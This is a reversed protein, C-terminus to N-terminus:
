KVVMILLCSHFSYGQETNEKCEADRTWWPIPGEGNIMDDRHCCYGKVEWTMYCRVTFLWVLFALGLGWFRIGFITRQSLDMWHGRIREINPLVSELWHLIWTNKQITLDRNKTKIFFRIPESKLRGHFSWCKQCATFKLETCFRLLTNTCM